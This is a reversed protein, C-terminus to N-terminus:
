TAGFSEGRGRAENREREIQAAVECLCAHVCELILQM